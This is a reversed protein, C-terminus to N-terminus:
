IHLKRQPRSEINGSTETANTKATMRKRNSLHFVRCVLGMKAKFELIYDIMTKVLMVTMTAFETM